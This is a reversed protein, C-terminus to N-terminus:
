RTSPHHPPLIEALNQGGGKGEEKSGEKKEELHFM